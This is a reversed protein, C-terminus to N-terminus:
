VIDTDIIDAPLLLWTHFLQICKIFCARFVTRVAMRVSGLHKMLKLGNTRFLRRVRHPVKPFWIQTAFVWSCIGELIFSFICIFHVNRTHLFTVFCRTTPPPQPLCCAYSSKLIFLFITPLLWNTSRPTFPPYCPLFIVNVTNRVVCHCSSTHPLRYM